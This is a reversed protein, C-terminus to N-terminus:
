LLSGGSRFRKPEVGASILHADVNIEDTISTSNAFITNSSRASRCPSLPESM